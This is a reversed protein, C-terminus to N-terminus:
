KKEGERSGDQSMVGCRMVVWCDCCSERDKLLSVLRDCPALRFLPGGSDGLTGLTWPRDQACAGGTCPQVM